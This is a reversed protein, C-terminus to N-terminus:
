TRTSALDKLILNNPLTGYDSHAGARIDKVNDFSSLHKEVKPYKSGDTM